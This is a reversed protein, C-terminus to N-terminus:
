IHILSLPLVACASLQDYKEQGVWYDGFSEDGSLVQQQGYVKYGESTYDSKKIASGFPGLKTVPRSNSSPLEDLRSVHWGDPIEM